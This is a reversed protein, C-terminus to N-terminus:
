ARENWHCKQNARWSKLTAALPAQTAGCLKKQNNIPNRRFFKTELPIKFVGEATEL